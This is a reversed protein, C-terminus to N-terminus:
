TQPFNPTPANLTAWFLVLKTPDHRIFFIFPRNAVLRKQNGDRELIAGTVAAAETGTETVDIEVKHLVQSAYLHPNVLNANNRLDDLGYSPFNKQRVFELFNQDIPRGQRKSRVNRRQESEDVVYAEKKEDTGLPKKAEKDRFDRRSRSKSISFGTSWQQVTVGRLKDEYTFYNRRVIHSVNNDDGIRSNFNTLQNSQNYMGTPSTTSTKSQAQSILSLDSLNPDFLSTLGLNTLASALSFSSSLKMRPLGIICSENKMNQILNEIQAVTLQNQFNRLAKAGQETPLLLYMTTEHGKYPLGLIKVGLQKDEFFPFTGGNYMLNVDISQDPEIFFPKRKTAYPLFPQNWEGNFYLASLLIITTAPDPLNDLISSIKGMTKQKVWNNIFEQTMRGNRYFDVNMVENKYVRDSLTKFEPLIPYGDQIFAATAFDLRPGPSGDIKSHLQNLLIGFMQHVIESNRSIDVGAELGLVKSVERFTRGASGALIIALTVTLSIPSFVINDRQDIMAINQTRFIEREMDLAFKLTGRAIINNVHDSWDQLPNETQTIAPRQQASLLPEQTTQLISNQAGFGPYEISYSTQKNINIPPRGNRSSSITSYVSPPITTTRHLKLQDPFIIQGWSYALINLFVLTIMM